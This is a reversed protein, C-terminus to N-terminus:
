MEQTAVLATIFLLQEVALITTIVVVVELVVLVMPVQLDEMDEVTGVAVEVEVLPNTELRLPLPLETMAQEMVEMFEALQQLLQEMQVLLVLPAAVDQEVVAKQAAQDVVM